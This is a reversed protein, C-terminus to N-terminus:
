EYFDEFDSRIKEAWILDKIGFSKSNKSYSKEVEEKMKTLTTEDFGCINIFNLIANKAEYKTFCVSSNHISTEVKYM